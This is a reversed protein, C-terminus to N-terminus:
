RLHFYPTLWTIGGIRMDGGGEIFEAMAAQWRANVETDGVAALAAAPDEAEFYGVAQGAAEDIFMSYNRIGAEQIAARMEPWVDHARLYDQVRDKRIRLMFCVRQM